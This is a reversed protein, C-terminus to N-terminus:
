EPGFSEMWLAEWVEHAEFFDGRNFLVIGALYRPDYPAANTEMGINYASNIWSPCSSCSSGIKSTEVEHEEHGEHMTRKELPDLINERRIGKASRMSRHRM